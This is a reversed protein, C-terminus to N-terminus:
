DVLDAREPERMHVGMRHEITRVLLLRRSEAGQFAAM